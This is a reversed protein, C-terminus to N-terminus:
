AGRNAVQACRARKLQPPGVQAPVVVRCMGDEGFAASHPRGRQSAGPRSAFTRTAASRVSASPRRTRRGSRSRSPSAAAPSSGGGAPFLGRKVEALGFRFVLGGHRIEWGDLGEQATAIVAEPLNLRGDETTADLTLVVGGEGDPDSDLIETSTVYVFREDGGEAHVDITVGRRLLNLFPLVTLSTIM